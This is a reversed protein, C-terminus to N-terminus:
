MTPLDVMVKTYEGEVSEFLLKGGHNKIINHSISLGLGTGSGPPKTSFFPDCVKNLINKPIGTGHDYFTTRVYNQDELKITKGQIELFKNEHSGSFRQNLSYHANSLIDLFVQQIEYSRAKIDPLHNSVDVSLKINDKAMQGKIMGLTNSLIDKIRASCSEEQWDKAFSLLNKVIEAIRDSEKIIKGPIDEDRGQEHYRQKLIEAYGMIGSIPNNIEHAVGAALTGVAEMRQAHQLQAEMKKRQTVDKLIVLIPSQEEDKIPIINLTIQKKNLEAPAESSILQKKNGPNKLADIIRERHEEDFLATFNESLVTEEPIGIISVAAPNIYVIKLESTLELIGESINNLITEFHKRSALLERTIERKFLKERGLIKAKVRQAPEVDAHEITTLVHEAMENFPGKAICFDAGYEALDPEEETAIASLIVIFIDKFKPMGRIIRCLKKGDINPMILDAFIIDPINTKLIELASLGDAASCVRHGKKELLERMFKLMIPHNDVVLIKKMDERGKLYTLNPAEGRRGNGPV